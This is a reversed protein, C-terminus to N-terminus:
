TITLIDMEVGLIKLVMKVGKMEQEGEQVKPM